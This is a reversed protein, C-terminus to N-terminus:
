PMDLMHSPTDKHTQYVTGGFRLWNLSTSSGLSLREYGVGSLAREKRGARRKQNIYKGM